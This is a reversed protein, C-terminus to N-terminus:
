SCFLKIGYESLQHLTKTKYQLNTYILWNLTDHSSENQKIKKKETLSYVPNYVHLISFSRDTIDLHWM